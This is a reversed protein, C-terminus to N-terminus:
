RPLQPYMERNIGRVDVKWKGSEDKVLPIQFAEPYSEPSLSNRNVEIRVNANKDDAQSSSVPRWLFRYYPGATNVTYDWKKRIEERSDDGLYTLDALKDVDGKALANMFQAATTAPSESRMFFLAAVVIACVVGTLILLNTRGAKRM